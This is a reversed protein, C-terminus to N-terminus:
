SQPKLSATSWLVQVLAMKQTISCGTRKAWASASNDIPVDGDELFVKLYKEQNVCFNLGKATKGKPPVATDALQEKVWAFYEEVMPRIVEQRKQLRKESTLEKLATDVTYFEAIKQLVQYAVSQKVANPNSKDAAKVADAFDRRAIRLAYQTHGVTRM